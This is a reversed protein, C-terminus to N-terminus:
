YHGPTCTLAVKGPNIFLLGGEASTVMWTNGHQDVMRPHGKSTLHVVNGFIRLSLDVEGWEIYGKDYGIETTGNPGPFRGQCSIAQPAAITSTATAATIAAAAILQKLM